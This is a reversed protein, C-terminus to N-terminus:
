RASNNESSGRPPLPRDTLQALLTTHTTVDWAFCSTGYFRQKLAKQDQYADVGRMGFIEVPMPGQACDLVVFDPLFPYDPLPYIPKFFHRRLQELHTAFVLEHSSEVPCGSATTTVAWLEEPVVHPNGYRLKVGSRSIGLVMGGSALIPAAFLGKTELHKLVWLDKNKVSVKLDPSWDLHFEPKDQGLCNKSHKLVPAIFLLQSRNRQAHGLRILIDKRSLDPMVLVDSLCQKHSSGRPRVIVHAAAQRLRAFVDGHATPQGLYRNLGALEILRHLLAVPSLRPLSEGSPCDPNLDDAQPRVSRKSLPDTTTSSATSDLAFDLDVQFPRHTNQKEQLWESPMQEPPPWTKAVDEPSLSAIDTDGAMASVQVRKASHRCAPTHQDAEGAYRALVIQRQSDTRDRRRDRVVLKVPQQSQANCGCHIVLHPDHQLWEILKKQNNISDYPGFLHREPVYTYSPRPSSRSDAPRPLRSYRTVM